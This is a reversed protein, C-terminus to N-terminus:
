IMKLIMSKIAYGTNIRRDLDRRTEEIVAILRTAEAVTIQPDSGESGQITNEINIGITRFLLDRFWRELGDLFRYSSDRDKVIEQLKMALSYYSGNGLIMTGITNIEEATTEDYFSEKQPGEFRFLVCRSRVTPLLHESNGSILIIVSGGPPEELTKLLRNQARVTMTDADKIIAAKRDGVLPKLRLRELLEEVTKDKVSLGDASITHIDEAYPTIESALDRAVSVARENNEDEIIYAHLLKGDKALRMVQEKLLEQRM